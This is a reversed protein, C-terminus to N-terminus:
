CGACDMQSRTVDPLAGAGTGDAALAAGDHSPADEHDRARHQSTGGMWGSLAAWTKRDILYGDCPLMGGRAPLSRLATGVHRFGSKELVRRSAPNIVRTWASVQGIPTLDFAASLVAQVAETMLGRGQEAPDLMYGLDLGAPEDPDPSLGIIGILRNPRNRPSLGLVLRAGTANSKRAEFIRREVEGAPLPHPWTGTMEAVAALGAFRALDDADRHRLWRLWLRPTELRFVDDRTLDPFLASGSSPPLISEVSSPVTM